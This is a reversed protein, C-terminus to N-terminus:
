VDSCMGSQHLYLLRRTPHCRNVEPPSGGGHDGSDTQGHDGWVLLLADAHRGGPGALAVMEEVIQILLFFKFKTAHIKSHSWRSSSETCHVKLAEHPSEGLACSIAAM